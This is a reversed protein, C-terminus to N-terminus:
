PVRIYFILFPLMITSSKSYFLAYTQIYHLTKLTEKKKHRRDSYFGLEVRFM